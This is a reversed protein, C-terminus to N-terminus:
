ARVGGVGREDAATTPDNSNGSSSLVHARRPAVCVWGFPTAEAFLEAMQPEWELARLCDARFPNASAMEGLQSPSRVETPLM